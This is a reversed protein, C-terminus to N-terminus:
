KRNVLGKMEKIDDSLDNLESVMTDHRRDRVADSSNWRDILKISIEEIENLKTTLSKQVYMMQGVFMLVIVGIAGYEAYLEILEM